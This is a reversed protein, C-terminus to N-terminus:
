TYRIVYQLQQLSWAQQVEGKGILSVDGASAAGHRNEIESIPLGGMWRAVTWVRLEWIGDRTMRLWAMQSCRRLVGGAGVKRASM